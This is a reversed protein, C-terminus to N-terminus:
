DETRMTVRSCVTVQEFLFLIISRKFRVQLGRGVEQTLLEDASHVREMLEKWLASIFYTKLARSCSGVKQGLESLNPCHHSHVYPFMLVDATLDVAQNRNWHKSVSAERLPARHCGTRNGYGEQGSSESLVNGM